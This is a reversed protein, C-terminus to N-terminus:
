SHLNLFYITVGVQDPHHSSDTSVPPNHLACHRAHLLHSILTLV